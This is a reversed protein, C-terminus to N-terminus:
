LSHKSGFLHGIGRAVRNLIGRKKGTSGYNNYGYYSSYGFVPHDDGNFVVGVLKQQDIVQLAEEVLKRPTKDAKVVVLFGDVLKEILRCDPFPILPPTDLIIYNYNGRAMELMESLRISKLDDYPSSSTKGSPLITLQIQSVVYAVQEFNLDPDGVIDTVGKRVSSSKLGIYTSLSPKRLDLDVLLVRNEPTQALAGALNIATTTKGDGAAPSSVAVVTLGTSARRQELMHCLARYQEAEFSALDLISVLHNEVSNRDLSIQQVEDFSRFQEKTKEEILPEERLPLPISVIPTPSQGSQRKEHVREQEAKQLAHYFRSM